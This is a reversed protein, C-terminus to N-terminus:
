GAVVMATLKRDIIVIIKSVLTLVVRKFREETRRSGRKQAVFAFQQNVDLVSRQQVAYCRMHVVIVVCVQICDNM